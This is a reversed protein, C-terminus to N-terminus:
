SSFYPDVRHIEPKLAHRARRAEQGRADRRMAKNGPPNARPQILATSLILRLPGESVTFCRQERQLDVDTAVIADNTGGCLGWVANQAHAAPAAKRQRLATSAYRITRPHQM